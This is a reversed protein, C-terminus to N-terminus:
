KSSFPRVLTPEHTRVHEIGKLFDSFPLLNTDSFSKLAQYHLEMLPGPVLDMFQHTLPIGIELGMPFLKVVGREETWLFWRVLENSYNEYCRYKPM